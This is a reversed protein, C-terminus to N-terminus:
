ALTLLCRHKLKRCLWFRWGLFCGLPADSVHASTRRDDPIFGSAAPAAALPRGRLRPRGRPPRCASIPGLPALRDAALASAALGHINQTMGRTRARPPNQKRQLPLIPQARYRLADPDSAAGCVFLESLAPRVSRRSEARRKQQSLTFARVGFLGVSSGSGAGNLTWKNVLAPRRMGRLSGTRANAVLSSAM